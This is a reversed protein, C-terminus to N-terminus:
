TQEATRIYGRQTGKGKVKVDVKEVIGAEVLPKVLSPIAQPKVELTAAVIIDTATMPTDTLVNLIAERIPAKEADKGARKEAAKARNKENSADLKEILEQAFAKVEDTVEGNMVAVYFERKNEM